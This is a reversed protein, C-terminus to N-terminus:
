DEDEDIVNDGLEEMIYIVRLVADKDSLTLDKNKALGKLYEYAMTGYSDM